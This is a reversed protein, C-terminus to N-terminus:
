NDRSLSSAVSETCKCESSNLVVSAAYKELIKVLSIKLVGCYTTIM